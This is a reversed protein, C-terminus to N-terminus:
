TSRQLNALYGNNFKGNPDYNRVLEIFDTFRKYQNTVYESKLTHVKGWHPRVGFPILKDEIIPLVLKVADMDPKWTFHFAVSPRKYMPSLWFDDKAITRIESIFLHPAIHSQVSKLANIANTADDIHVFYESQIEHGSSPNFGLRFHPLREYWKGVVGLQQTTSQHNGAEIPHMPVQSKKAGFFEDFVPNESKEKVWVQNIEDHQWSTFLSVSYASTVIASFNEFLISHPLQLFVQQWMDFRPIVELTIKTVLGLAGLGVVIGKFEDDKNTSTHIAGDATVFEIETVSTALNGITLGSGHTATMCSGVVSIHPLSALNPLAFGREDLYPCLQGYTVGAEITVTQKEVNLESIHNFNAFSVLVGTTDGIKSFSHRTGLAKISANQRVIEQIEELTEPYLIQKAQYHFNGGWNSMTNSKSSM